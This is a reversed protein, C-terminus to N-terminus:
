RHGGSVAVGATAGCLAGTAVVIPREHQLRALEQPRRAWRSAIVGVSTLLAVSAARSRRTVGPTFLTPVCVFTSLLLLRGSGKHIPVVDRDVDRAVFRRWGSAEQIDLRNMTM